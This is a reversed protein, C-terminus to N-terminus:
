LLRNSDCMAYHRFASTTSSSSASWNLFSLGDYCNAISSVLTMLSSFSFGCMSYRILTLCKFSLSLPFLCESLSQFTHFLIFCTCDRCFDSSSSNSLESSIGVEVCIIFCYHHKLSDLVDPNDNSSFFFANSLYRFSRAAFSMIAVESGKKFNICPSSM